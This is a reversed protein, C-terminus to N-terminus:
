KFFYFEIEKTPARVAQGCQTYLTFFYKIDLVATATERSPTQYRSRECRLKLANCNPVVFLLGIGAAKVGYIQGLLNVQIL